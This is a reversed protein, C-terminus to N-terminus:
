SIKLVMNHAKVLEDFCQIAEELRDSCNWVVEHAYERLWEIDDGGNIDSLKKILLFLNKQKEKWSSKQVSM